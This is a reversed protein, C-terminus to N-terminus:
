EFMVLLADHFLCQKSVRLMLYLIKACLVNQNMSYQIYSYTDAYQIFSLSSTSKQGRLLVSNHSWIKHLCKERERTKWGQLVRATLHGTAKAAGADLWWVTQGGLAHTRQTTLVDRLVHHTAAIAQVVLAFTLEVHFGAGGLLVDTHM